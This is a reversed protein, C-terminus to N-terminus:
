VLDTDGATLHVLAKPDAFFALEDDLGKTSQLALRHKRRPKDFGLKELVPRYPHYAFQWCEVSSKGQDRLRRVANAVLSELVDLRDPLVLLDAIHGTQQWACSVIYGLLRQDQEAITISYNGARRDAYRYNLYDKTRAVAMRYPQSAERWFGDCRADFAPVSRVTWACAPSPPPDVDLPRTMVDIFRRYKTGPSVYVSEWNNRLGLVLDFRQNWELPMRVELATMVRQRQFEPLVARDVGSRALLLRSDVKVLAVWIPRGAIIRGGLEAVIHSRLALPHSRLKWRLHEIPPVSLERKPWGDFARTFLDLLGQDDREEYFRDVCDPPLAPQLKSSRTAL